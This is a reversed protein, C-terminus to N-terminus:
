ICAGIAEINWGTGQSPLLIGELDLKWVSDSVKVLKYRTSLVIDQGEVLRVKGSSVLKVLADLATDRFKSASISTAQVTRTAQDTNSRNVLGCFPSEKDSNLIDVDRIGEAGFAFQDVSRSAPRAPVLGWNAHPTM